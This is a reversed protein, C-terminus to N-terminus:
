NLQQNYDWFYAIDRSLFLYIYQLLCSSFFHDNLLLFTIFIIMLIFQITSVRIISKAAIQGELDNIMMEQQNELLLIDKQFQVVEDILARVTESYQIFYNSNNFIFKTHM